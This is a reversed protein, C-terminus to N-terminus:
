FYLNLCRQLKLIFKGQIDTNLNMSRQALQMKDVKQEEVPKNSGSSTQTPTTITTKSTSKTRSTTRGFTYTTNMDTTTLKTTKIPITTITTTKAFTTTTRTCTTTVTTTTKTTTKTTRKTTITTSSETSTKTTTKETLIFGSTTTAKVLQRPTGFMPSLKIFFRTPAGAVVPAPKDKNEAVSSAYWSFDIPYKKPKAGLAAKKVERVAKVTSVTSTATTEQEEQVYQGSTEATVTLYPEKEIDHTSVSEGDEDVPRKRKVLLISLKDEPRLGFRGRFTMNHLLTKSFPDNINIKYFNPSPSSISPPQSAAITHINNKSDSNNSFESYTQARPDALHPMLPSLLSTTEATSPESHVPDTSLLWAKELKERKILSSM